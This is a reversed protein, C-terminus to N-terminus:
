KATLYSMRWVLEDGDIEDREQDQEKETKEEEALQRVVDDGQGPVRVPGELLVQLPLCRHGGM